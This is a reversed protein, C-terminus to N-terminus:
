VHLASSAVPRRQGSALNHLRKRAVNERDKNDFVGITTLDMSVVRQSGSDNKAAM